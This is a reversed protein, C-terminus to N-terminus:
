GKSASASGHVLGVLLLVFLAPVASLVTLHITASSQAALVFAIKSTAAVFLIVAALGLLRNDLKVLAPSLLLVGLFHHTWGLPGFLGSILMLCFIRRWLAKELPDNWTAVCLWILTTVAFAKTAVGIWFPEAVSLSMEPNAEGVLVARLQHLFTEMSFNVALLPTQGAIIRLKELYILHLDWGALALSATALAAGTCLFAVTARWDRDLLFIIVLLAPSLKIAAAIGLCIGALWAARNLYLVFALLILLTVLIQPQNHILATDSIVSVELLAVSLLCWLWKQVAWGTIRFTLFISAAIAAVHVLLVGDFFTQPDLRTTVPALLAAWLPPYIYPYFGANEPGRRSVEDQWVPSVDAGFFLAPSAYVEAFQGTGYFFSGFYVAALDAPWSGWFRFLAFAAWAGVILVAVFTEHAAVTRTSVTM